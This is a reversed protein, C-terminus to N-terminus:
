NYLYLTSAVGSIAINRDDPSWAAAWVASRKKAKVTSNSHAAALVSFLLMMALQVANRSSCHM